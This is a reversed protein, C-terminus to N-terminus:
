ELRLSAPIPWRTWSPSCGGSAPMATALLKSDPRYPWEPCDAFTDVITGMLEALDYVKQLIDYRRSTVASSITMTSFMTAVFVLVGAIGVPVGFTDTLFLTFYSAVTVQILMFGGGNSLAYSLMFRRFGAAKM